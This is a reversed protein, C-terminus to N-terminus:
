ATPKNKRRFTLYETLLDHIAYRELLNDGHYVHAFGPRLINFAIDAGIIHKALQVSDAGTGFSIIDPAGRSHIAYTAESMTRCILWLSPDPPDTSPDFWLNWHRSAGSIKPM